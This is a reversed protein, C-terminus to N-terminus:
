FDSFKHATSHIKEPPLLFAQPGYPSDILISASGEKYSCGMEGGITKLFYKDLQDLTDFCNKEFAGKILFAHGSHDLITLLSFISWGEVLGKM